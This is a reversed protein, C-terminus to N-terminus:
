DQPSDTTLGSGDSQSFRTLVSRAPAVDAPRAPSLMAAVAVAVVTGIVVGLLNASLDGAMIRSDPRWVICALQIWIGAMAGLLLAMFWHRRGLLAIVIPGLPLFLLVGGLYSSQSDGRSGLVIWCLAVFYGVALATAIPHRRFM